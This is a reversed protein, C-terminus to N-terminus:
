GKEKAKEKWNIKEKMTGITKTKRIVLHLM